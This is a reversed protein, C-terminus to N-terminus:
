SRHRWIEVLYFRELNVLLAVLELEEGPIPKIERPVEPRGRPLGRSLEAAVQSVGERGGHLADDEVALDAGVIVHGTREALLALLHIDARQLGVVGHELLAKVDVVYPRTTKNQLAVLALM